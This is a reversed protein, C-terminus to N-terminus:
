AELDSMGADDGDDDGLEQVAHLASENSKAAAGTEVYFYPSENSLPSLSLRKKTLHVSSATGRKPKIVHVGSTKMTARRNQFWFQVQKIDLGMKDALKKRLSTSPFPNKQFIATLMVLETDTPKFRAPKNNKDISARRAIVHQPSTPPTSLVVDLGAENAIKLTSRAPKANTTKNFISDRRPTAPSSSTTNSSSTPQPMKPSEFVTETITSTQMQQPSVSPSPPISPFLQFAPPSISNSRSHQQQQQQQHHMQDFFFMEAPKEGIQQQMPFMFNTNISSHDFQDFSQMPKMLNVPSGVLPTATGLFSAIPSGMPSSDVYGGCMSMRRVFETAPDNNNSYVSSSRAMLNSLSNMANMESRLADMGDMTNMDHINNFAHLGLLQSDISAQVSQAAGEAGFFMPNQPMDIPLSMLTFHSDRRDLMQQQQQQQLQQQQQQYTTHSAM